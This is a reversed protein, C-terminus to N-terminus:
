NLSGKLFSSVPEKSLGCTGAPAGPLQVKNPVFLMCTPACSAYVIMIGNAKMQPNANMSAGVTLIPCIKDAM